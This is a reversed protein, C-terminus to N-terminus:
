QHAIAHQRVELASALRNVILTHFFAAPPLAAFTLFRTFDNSAAGNIKPVRCFEKAHSTDSDGDQGPHNRSQGTQQTSNTASRAARPNRQAHHPTQYTGPCCFLSQGKGSDFAVRESPTAHGMIPWARCTVIAKEGSPFRFIGAKNSALMGQGSRFDTVNSPTFIVPNKM